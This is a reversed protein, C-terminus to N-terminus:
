ISYREFEQVNYPKEVQFAYCVPTWAVPGPSPTQGSEKISKQAAKPGETGRAAGKTTM